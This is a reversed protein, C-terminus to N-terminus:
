GYTLQQATTAASSWPSAEDVVFVAVLASWCDALM